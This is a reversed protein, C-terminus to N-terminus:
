GRARWVSGHRSSASAPSKSTRAGRLAETVTGTFAEFHKQAEAKPMSPEDAIREILETKNTNREEGRAKRAGVDGDM